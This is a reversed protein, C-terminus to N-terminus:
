VQIKAFIEFVPVCKKVQYDQNDVVIYDKLIEQDYLNTRPIDKAMIFFFMEGAEFGIASLVTSAGQAELATNSRIADISYESYTSTNKGTAEDYSSSEFKKYVVEISLSSNFLRKLLSKANKEIQSFNFLGAELM